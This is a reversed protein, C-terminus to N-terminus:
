SKIGKGRLLFMWRKKLYKNTITCHVYIFNKFLSSNRQMTKMYRKVFLINKLFVLDRLNKLHTTNLVEGKQIFNIIRYLFTWM